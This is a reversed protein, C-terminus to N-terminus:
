RLRVFVVKQPKAPDKYFDGITISQTTAKFYFEQRCTCSSFMSRLSISDEKVVFDYWGSGAKPLELGNRIERGRRLDLYDATGLNGLFLLTDLRAKQEVWIGALHKLPLAEEQEKCAGIVFLLSIFGFSFVRTRM